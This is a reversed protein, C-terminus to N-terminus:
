PTARNRKLRRKMAREFSSQKRRHGLHWHDGCHYAGLGLDIGKARELEDRARLADRKTRHRIKEPHDCSM